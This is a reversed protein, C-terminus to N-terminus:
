SHQWLCAFELLVFVYVSVVPVVALEANCMKLDICQIIICYKYVSVSSLIQKIVGNCFYCVPDVFLPCVSFDNVVKVLFVSEIIM